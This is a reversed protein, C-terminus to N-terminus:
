QAVRQIALGKVTFTKPLGPLQITPSVVAQTGVTVTEELHSNPCDTNQCTSATGDSCGCALSSSTTVTLNSAENSAATAIGTTDQATYGTQTAYQAGAKAANSVAISARVVRAMEAAGLLMTLMVPFVLATEVLSQGREGRGLSRMWLRNRRSNKNMM